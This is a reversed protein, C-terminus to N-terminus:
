GYYYELILDNFKKLNDASWSNLLEFKKMEFVRSKELHHAMTSPELNKDYVMSWDWELSHYLIHKPNYFKLDCLHNDLYPNLVLSFSTLGSKTRILKKCKSFIISEILADEGAKYSGYVQGTNRHNVEFKVLDSDWHIIKNPFTKKMENRTLESDTSLFINSVHSFKENIIDKYYSLPVHARTTDYFSDTGRIHIGITDDCFNNSVFLDAKDLIHKKIHLYKKRIENFQIHSSNTPVINVSGEALHEMFYIEGDIPVPQDFYNDWPNSRFETDEPPHYLSMKYRLDMFPLVNMSTMIRDYRRSASLFGHIMAMLSKDHGESSFRFLRKPRYKHDQM